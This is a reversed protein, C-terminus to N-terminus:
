SAGSPYIQPMGRAIHLPAILKPSTLMGTFSYVATERFFTDNWWISEAVWDLTFICRM